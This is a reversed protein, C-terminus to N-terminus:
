PPRTAQQQLATDRSIAKAGLTGPLCHCGVSKLQMVHKRVVGRSAVWFELTVLADLGLAQLGLPERQQLESEAKGFSATYTVTSSRTSQSTQSLYAPLAM